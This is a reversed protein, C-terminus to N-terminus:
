DMDIQYRKLAHHGIGHSFNRMIIRVAAGLYLERHVNEALERADEPDGNRIRDYLEDATM